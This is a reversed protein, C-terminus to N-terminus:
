IYWFWMIYNIKCSKKLFCAGKSACSHNLKIIILIYLYDHKNLQTKNKYQSIILQVLLQKKGLQVSGKSTKRCQSIVVTGVIFIFIIREIRKFNSIFNGVHPFCLLSSANRSIKETRSDSMFIMHLQPYITSLKKRKRQHKFFNKKM